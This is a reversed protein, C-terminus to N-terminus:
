GSCSVCGEPDDLSCAMAAMNETAKEIDQEVEDKVSEEGLVIKVAEDPNTKLYQIGTKLGKKWAYFHMSSLRSYNPDASFLNLSQSQDIFPARDVALDIIVRQSIEWATKYLKKLDEPILALKQVSGNEKLLMDKIKPSWIGRDLLDKLLHPNVVHREGSHARRAYIMSQYPETGDSNGMYIGTQHTPMPAILLSNRVGHAKIKSRLNDWDLEDSGKVEWLDHQLIGQSIPSGEYSPYPGAKQALENSAELAAFYICEFIKKNLERAETSDFPHQMMLFVDSLGQVGLGLARHKLASDKAEEMVHQNADIMKDLNKVAVKVIDALTDFNFTRTNADVCKSLVISATNCSAIENGDAYQMTNANFSSGTIIGLNKQNSKANVTDKYCLFPMGSDTQADLIAFWLKQASITKRAKGAKEYRVYLEEFDKGYSSYLGPCENPCMLSWEGNEEVRKMFLDPIWLGLLLNRARLNEEGNSRSLDIFEFVDAHWPEVYVTFTSKVKRSGPTIFRAADNFVRLMPIIGNSTGNTGAIYSGSARIKQFSMGVSGFVKAIRACITVTDYIGEISDDKMQVGFFSSLQGCITGANIMTTIGPVYLHRSMYDYAKFASELDEGHIALAVRMFMHQPREVTKTGIKLLCNKELSKFGFYDFYFDREYDIVSDIKEAHKSVLDLFEKTIIPNAAGTKPHVNDNYLSKIVEHFITHTEKQLNSISIRAALIGYDPHIKAMDVAIEAALEDLQVTTIGPYMNTVVKQAIQPPDVFNEDLGKCLISIRASIKDFFVKEQTGDRKIVYM